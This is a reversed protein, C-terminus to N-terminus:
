AINLVLFYVNGCYNKYRLIKLYDNIQYKIVIFLNDTRDFYFMIVLLYPTIYVVVM